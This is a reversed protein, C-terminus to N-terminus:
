EPSPSSTGTNQDGPERRTRERKGGGAPKMFLAILLAVTALGAAMLFTDAYPATTPSGAYMPMLAQAGADDRFSLFAGVLAAGMGAGLFFFLQYIGFGVGAIARHLALSAANANPAMIGAFGIGMVLLGAAIVVPSRDAQVSLVLLAALVTSICVLLLPRAGIRDSLRGAFPSLLTIALACPALILGAQLATLGHQEIVLLPILFLGGGLFAAQAFLAVGCAAVFTRNRFLAPPAFPHPTRQIHRAFAIVGVVALLLPGWSWLSAPGAQQIGTVGLLASAAAIAMLMGGGLDFNRLSGKQRDEPRTDPLYRLAGSFLIILLGLTGYFLVPWGGFNVVIGSIIPGAAAGIGVSSTVIGFALGREGPPFLRTVSGFALAPIAAAGAAQLVRGSVLVAFNPSLACLLSGAAFVMLATLFTKRLSVFDTIRGYLATGVAFVLAYATIIWGIAAASVGLDQRIRPLAVNIMTNNIVSVFVALAMIVLLARTRARASSPRIQPDAPATSM